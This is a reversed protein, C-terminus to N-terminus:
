RDLALRKQVTAFFQRPPLTGGEGYLSPNVSTIATQLLIQMRHYVLMM